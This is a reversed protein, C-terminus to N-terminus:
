WWWWWWRAWSCGGAAGLRCGRWCGKSGSDGGGAGVQLVVVVVAAAVVVESAWGSM